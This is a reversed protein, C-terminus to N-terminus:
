AALVRDYLDRLRAAWRPASFERDFRERGARGMALRLQPDELMPTLADALREARAPADILVGTVGDQVIEPIGGVRTAVVPVSGAMAELLATPFADVASPHVLVDVADLVDMVDDRHGALLAADGLPSIEGEVQARSPGEGVVLLRVGEMRRRLRMVAGAAADHGKGPRLVSLMGVVLDDSGLGLETRVHMGAGSRPTGAIGNHVTVVREPLDWGQALYARRGAESVAIVRDACHRRALAMARDKARERATGGWQMVHLTSLAPIRLTRAAVGGVLDSYGLHTHVLDPGLARLHRRVRRLATPDGLSSIPVLMPEVEHERLRPVAPSGDVDQLYTVSLEVGVTSVAAAYDTLLMEAGGWTMADIVVAVRLGTSTSM